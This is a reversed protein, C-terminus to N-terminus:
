EREGGRQKKLYKRTAVVHKERCSQCLTLGAVAATKGCSACLGAEIFAIRRNRRRESIEYCRRKRYKSQAYHMVDRCAACMSTGPLPEAKGCYGCLGAARREKWGVKPKNQM